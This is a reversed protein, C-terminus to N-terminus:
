RAPKRISRSMPSTRRWLRQDFGRARGVGPGRGSRPETNPIKAALEKFTLSKGNHSYAGDNVQVSAPDCDWIAAARQKMQEQLDLGLKYAALGTAFTVRSGGTLFTYGVSDTDGVQPRVDEAAIGLTEALQM